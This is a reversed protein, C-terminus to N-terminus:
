RSGLQTSDPWPGGVRFGPHFGEREPLSKIPRDNQWHWVGSELGTEHGREDALIVRKGASGLRHDSTFRKSRACTSPMPSPSLMAWPAFVRSSARSAMRSESSLARSAFSRCLKASSM